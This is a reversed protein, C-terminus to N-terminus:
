NVPIQLKIDEGAGVNPLTLHFSDRPTTGVCVVAMREQKTFAMCAKFLLWPHHLHTAM